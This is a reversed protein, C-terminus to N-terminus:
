RYVFLFLIRRLSLLFSAQLQVRVLLTFTHTHARTLFPAERDFFLLSFAGSVM